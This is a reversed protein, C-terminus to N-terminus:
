RKLVRLNVIPQVKYDFEVTQYADTGFGTTKINKVWLKVYISDQTKLLYVNDKVAAIGSLNQEVLGEVLDFAAQKTGPVQSIKTDRARSDKVKPSYFTLVTGDMRLHLDINVFHTSDFLYQTGVGSSPDWGFGSKASGTEKFEDIIGDDNYYVGAYIVSSIPSSLVGNNNTAYVYTKYRTGRNITTLTRKRSETKLVLVSDFRSQSEGASNVIYTIAVYGNFDANSDDASKDWSVIASSNGGAVANVVVTINTAPAVSVPPNDETNTSCNSGISCFSLTFLILLVLLKRYDKKLQRFKPSNTLAPWVPLVKPFTTLM